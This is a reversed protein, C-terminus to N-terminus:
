RNKGSIYALTKPNKANWHVKKIWLTRNQLIQSSIIRWDGDSARIQNGVIVNMVIIIITAHILPNNRISKERKSNSLYNILQIHVEVNVSYQNLFIEGGM